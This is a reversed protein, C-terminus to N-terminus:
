DLVEVKGYKIIFSRFSEGDKMARIAEQEDVHTPIYISYHGNNGDMQEKAGQMFASYM